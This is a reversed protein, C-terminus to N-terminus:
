GNKRIFESVHSITMKKVDALFDELTFEAHRATLSYTISGLGSNVGGNKIVSHGSAKVVGELEKSHTGSITVETDASVESLFKTIHAKFTETSLLQPLANQYATEIVNGEQEIDSFYAQQKSTYTSLHVKELIVDDIMTKVLREKDTQEQRNQIALSEYETLLQKELAEQDVKMRQEITSYLTM